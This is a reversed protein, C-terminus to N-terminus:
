IKFVEFGLIKGHSYPQKEKMKMAYNVANIHKSFVADEKIQIIRGEDEGTKLVNYIIHYTTM